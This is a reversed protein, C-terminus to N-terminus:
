YDLEMNFANKLRLLDPNKQLLAEFREKPSYLHKDTKGIKEELHVNINPNNLNKRLHDLFLQKVVEFGEIQAKNEAEIIVKTDDQLFIREDRLTTAIQTKGQEQMQKAFLAVCDKLQPLDFAAYTTQELPVPTQEVPSLDEKKKQAQKM